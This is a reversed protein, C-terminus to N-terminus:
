NNSPISIELVENAWQIVQSIYDSFDQTSMKATSPTKMIVDGSSWDVETKDCFKDKLVKHITASDAEVLNKVLWEDTMEISLRLGLERLGDKIAPLVVGWYYANQNLSRAQQYRSISVRVKEGDLMKSFMMVLDIEHETPVILQGEHISAIFSIEIEKNKKM